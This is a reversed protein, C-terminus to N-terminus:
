TAIDNIDTSQMFPPVEEIIEKISQTQIVLTETESESKIAKWLTSIFKTAMQTIVGSDLGGEKASKILSGFSTAVTNRIDDNLDYDALQLMIASTQEIFPAYAGGLEEIFISIMKIAESKEEIDSTTISVKDEKSARVENLINQMEGEAKGAVGMEPNLQALTFLSPVVESLYPAFDSGMVVAIRQWATILYSKQPDKSDTVQTQIQLMLQILSQAHPAFAEKGVSQAMITVAEIM